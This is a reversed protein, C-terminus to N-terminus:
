ESLRVTPEHRRTELRRESRAVVSVYEADAANFDFRLRGDRSPRLLTHYDSIGPFERFTLGTRYYFRREEDNRKNWLLSNTRKESKRKPFGLALALHTKGTGFNNVERCTECDPAVNRQRLAALCCQRHALLTCVLSNNKDLFPRDRCIM